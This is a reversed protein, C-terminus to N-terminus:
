VDVRSPLTFRLLSRYNKSFKSFRMIATIDLLDVAAQRSVGQHNDTGAGWRVEPSILM